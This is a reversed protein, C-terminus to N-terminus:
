LKLIVKGHIDYRYIKEVILAKCLADLYTYLTETSIIRGENKLYGIINNASFERGTIDILYQLILNFLTIDKLGLREVVDRLIISDFM